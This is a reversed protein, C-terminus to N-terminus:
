HLNTHNLVTTVIILLHAVHNTSTKFSINQASPDRSQTKEKQKCQQKIFM